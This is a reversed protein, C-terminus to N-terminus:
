SIEYNQCTPVVLLIKDDSEVCKILNDLWNPTAVVDNSFAVVYRGEFVDPFISTGFANYKYNIKKENPLNEFYQETEDNSGNNWTILEIDGQSFDTYKYISEVAAKTYELKNYAVVFISIKYKYQKNKNQKAIEHLHLARNVYVNADNNIDRYQKNIVNRLNWSLNMIELHYIRMQKDPNEKFSRISHRMNKCCTIALPVLHGADRALMKEMNLLLLILDDLLSVADYIKNDQCLKYGYQVAEEVIDADRYLKDVDINVNKSM